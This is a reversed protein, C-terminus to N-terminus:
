LVCTILKWTRSRLFFSKFGNPKAGWFLNTRANDGNGFSMPLKQIGQYRHDVLAVFVHIKKPKEQSFINVQFFLLMIIFLCKTKM